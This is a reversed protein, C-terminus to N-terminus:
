NRLDIRFFGSGDCTTSGGRCQVQVKTVEEACCTRTEGSLVFCQTDVVQSYSFVDIDDGLNVVTTCLNPHPGAGSSAYIVYVPTGTFSFQGPGGITRGGPPLIEAASGAKVPQAAGDSVVGFSFVVAVTLILLLKLTKKM